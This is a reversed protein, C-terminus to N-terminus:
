RNNEDEQGDEFKTDNDFGGQHGGFGGQGG